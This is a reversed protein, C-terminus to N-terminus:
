NNRKPFKENRQPLKDYRVHPLRMNHACSILEFLLVFKTSFEERKDLM